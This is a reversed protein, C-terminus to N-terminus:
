SKGEKLDAKSNFLLVELQKLLDSPKYPKHLYCTSPNKVFEEIELPFDYGTTILIKMESRNTQCFTVLNRTSQRAMNLGIVIAAFTGGDLLASVETGTNAKFALVGNLELYEAISDVVM